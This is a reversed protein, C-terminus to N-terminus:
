FKLNSIKLNTERLRLHRMDWVLGGIVNESEENM